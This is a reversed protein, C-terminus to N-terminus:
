GQFFDFFQTSVEDATSPPPEAVLTASDGSVVAWILPKINTWPHLKNASLRGM